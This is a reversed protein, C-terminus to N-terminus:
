GNEVMSLYIAQVDDPAPRSGDSGDAIWNIRESAFTRFVSPPNLRRASDQEFWVTCESGPVSCFVTLSDRTKATGFYRERNLDRLAFVMSAFVGAKFKVFGWPDDEDYFGMGRNNILENVADFGDSEACEYDWEYASWRQDGLLSDAFAIGHSELWKRHPEDAMQKAVARQYAQESNMSPNIGVAGDVTYLAFVYFTEDLHAARVADFTQRSAEAIRHRLLNFDVQTM